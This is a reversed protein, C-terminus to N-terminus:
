VHRRRKLPPRGRRKAGAVEVAELLRRELRREIAAMDVRLVIEATLRHEGSPAECLSAALGIAPAIPMQLDRILELAVGLVLLSHPPVGRSLGRRGRVVGPVDHHTLVNDVWKIPVDLVLQVTSVSYSRPM